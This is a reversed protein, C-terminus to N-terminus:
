DLLLLERGARLEDCEEPCRHHMRAHSLDILSAKGTDESVVINDARLDGHMVGCTHLTQLDHYLAMRQGLTLERGVDVVQRGRHELVLATFVRNSCLGYVRPLTAEHRQLQLYRYVEAEHSLMKTEEEYLALAMKVVVRESQGTSTFPVAHGAFVPGIIGQELQEDFIFELGSASSPGGGVRELWHTVSPGAGPVKFTM